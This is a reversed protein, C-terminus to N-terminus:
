RSFQSVAVDTMIQTHPSMHLHERGCIDEDRRMEGPHLRLGVLKDDRLSGRATVAKGTNIIFGHGREVLPSSRELHRWNAIPARQQIQENTGECGLRVSWLLHLHGASEWLVRSVLQTGPVMTPAKEDFPVM